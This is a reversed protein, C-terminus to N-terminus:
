FWKQFFSLGKEFDLQFPITEGELRKAMNMFSATSKARAELLGGHNLLALPIEDDYPVAGLLPIDLVQSVTKPPLMKGEKIWKPMVKNVVLSPREKGRQHLADIVKEQNRLAMDDPTTVLVTQAEGEFVPHLSEFKAWPCDIFVYDQEKVLEELLAQFPKPPIDKYEGNQPSTLLKLRDCAPHPVLGQPLSCEERLVDLLDYVMRSELGLLMDVTRFGLNYDVVAVNKGSQALALALSATVTSTGTGGKASVLAWLKKM